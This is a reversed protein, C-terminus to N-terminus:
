PNCKESEETKAPYQIPNSPLGIMPQQRPIVTILPQTSSFGGESLEPQNARYEILPKSSFIGAGTKRGFLSIQGPSSACGAVLAVSFGLVAMRFARRIVGALFPVRLLVVVPSSSIGSDARGGGSRGSYLRVSGRLDPAAMRRSGCREVGRVAGPPIGALLHGNQIADRKRLGLVSAHDSDHHRNALDVCRGGHRRLLSNNAM